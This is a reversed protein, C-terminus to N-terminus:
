RQVHPEVHLSLPLMEFLGGVRSSLSFMEYAKDNIGNSDKEKKELRERWLSGPIQWNYKSDKWMNTLGLLLCIGFFMM